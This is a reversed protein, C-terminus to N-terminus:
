CIIIKHTSSVPFVAHEENGTKGVHLLSYYSEFIIELWHINDQITNYPTNNHSTNYSITLDKYPNIRMYVRALDSYPTNYQQIIRKSLLQTYRKDTKLIRNVPIGRRIAFREDYGLIINICDLPLKKFNENM